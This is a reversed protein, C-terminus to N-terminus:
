NWGGGVSSKSIAKTTYEWGGKVAVVFSPAAEAPVHRVERMFAASTQIGDKVCEM